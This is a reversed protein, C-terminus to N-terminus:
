SQYVKKIKVADTGAHYTYEYGIGGDADQSARVQVDIRGYDDAPDSTGNGYFPEDIYHYYVNGYQDPPNQPIYSEIRNSPVYYTYGPIQPTILGSYTPNLPDSYDATTYKNIRLVTDTNGDYTYVYCIAGDTDPADLIQVDVRGLKGGYFDENKYHYYISDSADKTTLIKSELNGSSYYTYTIGNLHDEKKIITGALDYEYTVLLTTFLPNSLDSYNASQYVKKIKVADTGAHYTYEYGIGGDADQFARVQVDIRGYDDAPDSTGNNYFPEDIYHYYVNGYQDTVPPIYSEMRNSPTYYTYASSFAGILGSYIPNSPDSYDVTTYKNVRLIINTNGSYEYVYCIAGDGDVTERIQVDIRGYDDAPDATGNNYFPEDIYHYYVNGYQDAVNLTKSELRGSSGPYSTFSVDNNAVSHNNSSSDDINGNLHLLLATNPDSTYPGTTVTITDTLGADPNANFPNGNYIRIEDMWGNFSYLGANYYGIRLLGDFIDVDADLIYATQQGDLYIAYINGKKVLSIHHFDNDTIRATGSDVLIATNGGSKLMFRIQGGSTLYLSWREGASEFQGILYQTQITECKVWLDITVDTQTLVDWDPNDSATLNSSTGNFYAYEGFKSGGYYTYESHTGYYWDQLDALDAASIPMPTSEDQWFLGGLYGNQFLTNLRETFNPDTAGNPYRPDIEGVIVPKGNFIPDNASFNLAGFGDAYWQSWYHYQAVDVDNGVGDILSAWQTAWLGRDSVGITVDKNPDNLKARDLLAQLFDRMQNAGVANAYAPENMLEWMLIEDRDAYHQIFNGILAMLQDRKGGPAIDSIIEPHEAGVGDAIMYDFLVPMIRTGTVRSAELLADMDQYLKTENYFQLTPGSFDVIDKLDCFLFVRAIGGAFDNLKNILLGQNDGVSFGKTPDQSGIDQGYNQWPLNGGKYFARDNEFEETIRNGNAPDTYSVRGTRYITRQQLLVWSGTYIYETFAEDTPNWQQMIHNWATSGNYEYLYLEDDNTNATGQDEIKLTIGATPFEKITEAAYSYQCISFSFLMLLGVGRILVSLTRRMNYLKM